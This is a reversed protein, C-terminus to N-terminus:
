STLRDLAERYKDLTSNVVGEPLVPPPSAKDWDSAELWDRVFQKDFSSPSEGERYRDKPWFRSSDPTLVEDILILEGSPLRGWELKTDALIIGRSEAHAAARRYVDLTKAKLEAATDAGAAKAMVEFTINEDHAGDEAKTAPTFLPEPLKSALRLGKPLALGCVTSHRQYEKWVSGLLYGRAVCEVPVVTAKKVLMVRGELEERQFAPPLDSLNASILHNPINLWKFWFLTMQTLIQGKGPIPTPLVWDFASIRDTAVIVLTDGLDYVDRVKGRRPTHGPVQSQLLPDASM